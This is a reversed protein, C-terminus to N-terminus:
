YGAGRSMWGNGNESLKCRITNRSQGGYTCTFLSLDWEGETMRELDTGAIVEMELVEYVFRNGDMDTFIVSDGADLNRIYRFHNKYSHGALIMDNTYVSGTYRCPSIKLREDNWESIIPLELNLEPIEVVGIYAQGDIVKEPMDMDPNLIFDPIEMEALSSVDELQQEASKVGEPIIEAVQVLAMRTNKTAQYEDWLNYGSLFLAAATLLVGSIMFGRGKKGNNKMEM